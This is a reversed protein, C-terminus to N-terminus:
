RKMATAATQKDLMAVDQWLKTWAAREAEPLKAMSEANRVGAFDTDAQWHKLARAVTLRAKDPETQLLQRMATLDARLWTLAQNRLRAREPAALPAADEGQGCGALAAACAANYRDQTNLNVALAPQATFAEAYFRTAAAYRKKHEQCIRALVLREAADAPQAEGKLIMPLKSELAVFHEATRVWQASPYPWRPKKSGLEHGRKLATLAEAFRGQQLLVHGLNCHAEAYDQKLRLAERYAALAEDLQGTDRLGNGLCYHAQPNDKNLRLAEQYEALAEDMRGKEKLANGLNGHAEPYDKKLQLAERYEAIAEDLRGKHYLANGLGNHAEPCDKKLHLAEQYEALAEDLQGKDVLANGLNCRTKLLNKELRIAEKYEAIAEDVQGKDKLANGLNGHAGPFDKKLRLAEQCEAIAEDLRGKLRLACGLNSHAEPNDNKLRLAERLEAIAEDLRGKDGLASGLSNHAEPNDKKLRLAEQFEAIAEDLRGKDHLANGLNNHAEPYDKKLRLAEQYEAIAEDLRGKDGFASGLDYHAEPYDKKLRLAEHYEVIAEDLQGKRCLANGLNNHAEPFDKNLRLAEQYEAIAEDLQGKRCLANGLGNHPAPLDKELRIAEKFEAIAEDLRGKDDLAVGLNHHAIPFDKKLRLAEQYEAIAEDLRGKHGLAYGLNLRAGPSSPRLAVAASFFCIAEDWQPPRASVFSLALVHNIWFDEPHRLRAERLATQPKVAATGGLAEALVALTLPQQRLVEESDALTVLAHQDRRGLADRMQDRWGDPDAAQAVRLLHRLSQDTRGKIGKRILAWHDLVAVLQTVVSSQRIREGAEAASLTEVDLGAKQFAETYLRDTLDNDFHDEKVATMQLRAEELAAVLELDARRAQLRKRFAEDAVGTDVLWAARRVAALAEPLRGEQQWNAAEALAASAERETETQRAARDRVVWGVSGAVVALVVVLAAAVSGV